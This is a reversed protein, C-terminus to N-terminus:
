ILDRKNLVTNYFRIIDTLCLRPWTTMHAERKWGNTLDLPDPILEDEVKLKSQYENLLIREQHEKESDVEM